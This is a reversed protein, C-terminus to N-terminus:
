RAHGASAVRSEDPLASQGGPVPAAKPQGPKEAPQGPFVPRETPIGLKRQRLYNEEAVKPDTTGYFHRLAEGQAIALYRDCTDGTDSNILANRRDNIADLQSTFFEPIPKTKDLSRADKEVREIRSRLEGWDDVLSEYHGAWRGFPVFVLSLSGAAVCVAAIISRAVGRSKVRDAQEIGKRTIKPIMLPIWPWLTLGLGVVIIIGSVIQAGIEWRAWWNAQLQCYHVATISRYLDDFLLKKLTTYTM